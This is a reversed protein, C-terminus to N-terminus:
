KKLVQMSANPQGFGVGNGLNGAEVVGKCVESKCASQGLVNSYREFHRLLLQLRGSPRMVVHYSRSFQSITQNLDTFSDINRYRVLWRGTFQLM